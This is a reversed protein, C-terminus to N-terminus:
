GHELEVNIVIIEMIYFMMISFAFGKFDKGDVIAQTRQPLNPKWCSEKEIGLFDFVLNVLLICVKPHQRRLHSVALKLM